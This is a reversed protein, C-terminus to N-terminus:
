ITDDLVWNDDFKGKSLNKAKGAEAVSDWDIGNVQCFKLVVEHLDALEEILEQKNKAILVEDLEEQLKAIVLQNLEGSDKVKRFNRHPAIQPINDRVLKINVKM